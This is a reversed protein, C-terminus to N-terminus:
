DSVKLTPLTHNIPNQLLLPLNKYKQLEGIGTCRHGHVVSKRRFRYCLWVQSCFSFLSSELKGPICVSFMLLVKGARFNKILYYVVGSTNISLGLNIWDRPTGNSRQRAFIELTGVNETAEVATKPVSQWMRFPAFVICTRHHNWRPWPLRGTSWINM